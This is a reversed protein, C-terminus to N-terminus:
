SFLFFNTFFITHFYFPYFIRKELFFFSVFITYFILFSFECNLFFIDPFFESRENILRILRLYKKRLFLNPLFLEFAYLLFAAFFRRVSPLHRSLSKPIKKRSTFHLKRICYHSTRERLSKQTVKVAVACNKCSKM